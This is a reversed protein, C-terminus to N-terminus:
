DKNWIGKQLWTLLDTLEEDARLQYANRLVQQVSYPHKGNPLLESKNIMSKIQNRKGIM